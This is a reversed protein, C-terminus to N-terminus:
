SGDSEYSLKTSSPKASSSETTLACTVGADESHDCNHVGLDAHYCQDLVREDGNCQLDDLWIQGQGEGFRARRHPRAPGRAFLM